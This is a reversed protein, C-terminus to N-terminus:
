TLSRTKVSDVPLKPVTVIDSLYLGTVYLNPEVDM